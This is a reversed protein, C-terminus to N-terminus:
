LSGKSSMCDFSTEIKQYSFKISCKREIFMNFPKTFFYLYALDIQWGNTQHKPDVPDIQIM